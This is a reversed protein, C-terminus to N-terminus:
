VVCKQVMCMKNCIESLALYRNSAM